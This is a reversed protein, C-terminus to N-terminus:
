SFEKSFTENILCQNRVVTEIDIGTTNVIKIENEGALTCFHELTNQLTEYDDIALVTINSGNKCLIAGTM